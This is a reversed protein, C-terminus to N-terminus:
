IGHLTVLLAVLYLLRLKRHGLYLRSVSPLRVNATVAMFCHFWNGLVTRSFSDTADNLCLM